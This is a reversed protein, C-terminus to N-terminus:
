RTPIPMYYLPITLDYDLVLAVISGVMAITYLTDRRQSTLPLLLMALSSVLPWLLLVTVFAFAPWSGPFFFIGALVLLLTEALIGFGGTALGLVVSAKLPLDLERWRLRVM